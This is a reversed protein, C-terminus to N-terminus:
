DISSQQYYESVTEELEEQIEGNSSVVEFSEPFSSERVRVEGGAEEIILKAATFDWPKVIAHVSGDARGLAVKCMELACTGIERTVGGKKMLDTLFAKDRELNEEYVNLLHAYIVSEEVTNHTSTSLREIGKSNVLYAGDNEVAYYTENLSTQPSHVVGVKTEGDVEFGISVCYFDMGKKFNFTGDIPDIVWVRDEKGPTLNEEEGLFTDDPFIEKINEVIIEQSAIDAETVASDDEKKWDEFGNEAYKEILNGAKEAADLATELEKSYRSNEIKFDM